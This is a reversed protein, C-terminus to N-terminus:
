FGANSLVNKNSFLRITDSSRLWEEEDPINLVIQLKTKTNKFLRKLLEVLSNTKIFLAHYTVYFNFSLKFNSLLM